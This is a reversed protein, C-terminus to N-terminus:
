IVSCIKRRVRQLANGIAKITTGLKDAIEQYSYDDLYLQLAQLEFPSLLSEINNKFESISEKMVVFSLPDSSYSAVCDYFYNEQLSVTNNLSKNKITQQSIIVNLMANHVCSSAFTKFAVQKQLDFAYISRIFAILGEQIFDDIDAGNKHISYAWFNIMPMYRKILESVAQPHQKIVLECLESDSCSPDDLLGLSAM